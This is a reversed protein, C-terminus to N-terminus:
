PPRPSAESFSAWYVSHNIPKNKDMIKPARWEWVWVSRKKGCLSYHGVGYLSVAVNVVLTNPAFTLDFLTRRPQQVVPVTFLVGLGAHVDGFQM